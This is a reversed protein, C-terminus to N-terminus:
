CYIYWGFDPKGAPDLPAGGVLTPGQAKVPIVALARPAPGHVREAGVYPVGSPQVNVVLLMPDYQSGHCVCYVPDEGFQKFTPPPVVYNEYDPPPNTIVHWGPYCCLHVCRDFLVVIRTGDNTPDLAPDDFYLKFAPDSEQLRKFNEPVQEPAPETFFQDERKIRIILCPYGTGPVWTTGQFLGRWVGTAGQWPQFDSVRVPSGAKPNWWQPTPFKTYQITDRVEGVIKYPPPLIQGAVLGGLGAVAGLSAASIGVKVWERRTWGKEQEEAEWSVQRV